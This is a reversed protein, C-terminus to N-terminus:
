GGKVPINFRRIFDPVNAYGDNYEFGSSGYDDPTLSYTPRERALRNWPWPETTGYGHDRCPSCGEKPQTVCNMVRDGRNSVLLSTNQAGIDHRIEEPAPVPELYDRRHEESYKCVYWPSGRPGISNFVLRVGPNQTAIYIATLKGGYDREARYAEFYMPQSVTKGDLYKHVVLYYDSCYSM